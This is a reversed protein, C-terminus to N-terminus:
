SDYMKFDGLIVLKTHYNMYKQLIDGALRTKLDYYDETINSQHLVIKNSDHIYNITAMLDLADQVNWILIKSSKIIVVKSNNKHNISINM